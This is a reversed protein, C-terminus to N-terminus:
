EKKIAFYNGPGQLRGNQFVIYTDGNITLEDETVVGQSLVAFVGHFEGFVNINPTQSSLILPMVFHDGSPDPDMRLAYYDPYNQSGGTQGYHYPWVNVKYALQGEADQYHNGVGLWSGNLYWLSENVFSGSLSYPDTWGRNHAGTNSYRMVSIASWGHSGGIALPYPFSNPVGYPLIYGLYFSAYYTGGVKVVGTVRRGNGFFWYDMLGNDLGVHAMNDEANSNIGPQQRWDDVDSYGTFGGLMWNYVSYGTDRYCQFGILIDDIGSVGPGALILEYQGNGDWDTDWRKVTWVDQSDIPDIESIGTGASQVARSPDTMFEKLRDLLDLYDDATGIEYAM